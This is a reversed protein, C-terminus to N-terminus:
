KRGGWPFNFMGRNPQSQTNSEQIRTTSNMGEREKNFIPRTLILFVCNMFSSMLGQYENLDIGYKKRNNMLDLAVDKRLNCMYDEFNEETIFNAQVTSTNIILNIWRMVAQFGLSNVVPNGKWITKKFLEGKENQVITYDEGKLFKEFEEIITRTDLRIQLASASNFDRNSTIYGQSSFNQEAGPEAM